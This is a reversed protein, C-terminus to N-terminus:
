PHSNISIVGVLTLIVGLLTGAGAWILGETFHPGSSAHNSQDLLRNMRAVDNNRADLVIQDTQRQTDLALQLTSVDANYRATLLSADHRREILCRQQTSGVEVAVRAIAPGNFLVGNFPAQEGRTLPLIAEGNPGGSSIVVNGTGTASDPSSNLDPLGLISVDQQPLPVDEVLFPPLSTNHLNSPSSCANSMALCAMFIAKSSVKM